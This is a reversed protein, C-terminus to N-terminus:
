KPVLSYAKMIDGIKGRSVRFARHGNQERRLQQKLKRTGYCERSLYFEHIVANILETDVVKETEQYYYSSRGLKLTKCM